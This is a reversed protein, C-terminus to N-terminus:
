QSSVYMHIPGEKELVAKTSTTKYNFVVDAGLSKVFECKEDSGASAIVKLGENKAIQVVFSGVPGSAATVFVVDGKKSKAYEKWACYATQGPMGGVGVYVSWPLGEKNDLIRFGDLSPRIFYQM